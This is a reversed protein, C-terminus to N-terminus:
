GGNGETITWSTLDVTQGVSISSSLNLDGSGVSASGQLVATTGDSKFVRFFTPTATTNASSDQTTASVTLVGGSITGFQSANCTIEALVAQGALAVTIDAPVSGSYIRLIGSTGVDDALAQLMTNRLSTRYSLAM